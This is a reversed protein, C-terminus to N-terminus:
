TLRAINSRIDASKPKMIRLADPIVKSATHKKLQFGVQGIVGLLTIIGCTRSYMRAINISLLNPGAMGRFRSNLIESIPM